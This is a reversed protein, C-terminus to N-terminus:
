YLTFDIIVTMLIAYQTLKINVYFESLYDTELKTHIWKESSSFSSFAFTNPLNWDNVHLWNYDSTFHIAHITVEIQLLVTHVTYVAPM